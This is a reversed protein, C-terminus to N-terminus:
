INEGSDYFSLGLADYTYRLFRLIESQNKLYYLAATRRSRGVRLTIGNDRFARFLAEDTLDDGACIPLYKERLNRVIMTGATGKNCLVNPVLELVKKGRSIRITGKAIAKAATKHFAKKLFPISETCVTRYHIAFSFTKTEIVTGEIGKVETELDRRVKDIEMKTEFAGPHTYRIGPGSIELGHSGSLYIGPLPVKRRLDSLSRGSLVAIRCKDSRALRGLTGKVDSSMACLAPDDRIPVLTGDFDLLLLVRREEIGVRINKGLFYIPPM